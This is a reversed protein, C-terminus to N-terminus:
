ERVVWGAQFGAQRLHQSLSDLQMPNEVPGMRVQYFQGGKLRTRTVVVRSVDLECLRQKLRIAHSQRHFAGLQLYLHDADSVAQGGNCSTLTAESSQLVKPGKLGVVEVPAVGTDVIGLEEAAKYSLDIIREDTDIFPGRDNIRVVISRGSGLHTIRALSPLPLTRHAATPRYMDYIEGSATQQGHFETGYWSALGLEQYGQAEALPHYWKGKIRYPDNM